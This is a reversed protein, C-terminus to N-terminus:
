LSGLRGSATQLKGSGELGGLLQRSSGLAKWAEWFSDPAEWLRGLRGSAEALTERVKSSSGLVKHLEGPLGSLMCLRHLSASTGLAFHPHFKPALAASFGLLIYKPHNGPRAALPHSLLLYPMGNRGLASYSAMSSAREM